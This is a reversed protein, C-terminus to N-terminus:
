ARRRLAARVARHGLIWGGLVVTAVVVFPAATGQDTAARLAMGGVITVLWTPVGSRLSLPWHSAVLRVGVWGLGLALLFPWATHWWGGLTLGEDHSLRGVVAFAAVGIVDLAATRGTTSGDTM